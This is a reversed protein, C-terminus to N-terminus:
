SSGFEDMWEKYKKIDEASVSRSVKDLAEQLDSASVPLELEEKPINRIEEPSLGAIRKRMAMM